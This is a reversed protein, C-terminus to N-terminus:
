SLLVCPSLLVLLSIVWDRLRMDARPANAASDLLSSGSERVELGDPGTVVLAYTQGQSSVVQFGSVQISLAHSSTQTSPHMHILIDNHTLIHIFVHTLIHMFVPKVIHM